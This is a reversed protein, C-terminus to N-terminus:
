HLSCLSQRGRRYSHLLNLNRFSCPRLSSGTSGKRMMESATYAASRRGCSRTVCVKWRHVGGVLVFGTDGQGLSLGWAGKGLRLVASCSLRLWPRQHVQSLQDLCHQPGHGVGGGHSLVRISSQSPQRVGEACVATGLLQVGLWGRWQCRKLVQQLAAQCGCCPEAPVFGGVM